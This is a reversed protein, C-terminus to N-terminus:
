SGTASGALISEYYRVYSRSQTELSYEQAAIRRCNESMAAPKALIDLIAARLAGADAVPALQGTIGPRVMDPIGGVNFGAVPTGCAM